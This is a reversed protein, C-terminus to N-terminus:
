QLIFRIPLVMRVKVKIGNQEGPIWDPMKELVRMAEKDIDSSPGRLVTIDSLKGNENVTFQLFVVGQIGDETASEPYVINKSVFKYLDRQGGPFEPQKEVFNYIVTEEKPKPPAVVTTSGAVNVPGTITKKIEKQTPMDATDKVIAATVKPAVYKIVKHVPQNVIQKPSPPPLNKEIPPPPALEAYNIVKAAQVTSTISSARRNFVMLLVLILIFSFVVILIALSTKAAYNKRLQFAGYDKNRSEFVLHDWGIKRTKM